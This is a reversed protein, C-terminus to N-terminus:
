QQSILKGSQITKNKDIVRYFYMGSSLNSTELMKIQKTVTTRMVEEGLVNYIRLECSNIQSAENIMVTTQISFPNPYITLTEDTNAADNTQISVTLCNAPIMTAVANIAATTLAGTTTLARGNLTVGTNFAGLAGNNCVITGCFVSYNNLSVAGEILWYVNKSQAGNILKVKSYTSTSLAGNIKIVFVADVNGLANLYISDTFTAAANMLYTHPTLVLNLGFEAPYLLEIDYPLLNLYNYATLLDAACVATSGDAILHITGNVLLSDFGTTLGVNTGVDGTVNTIGSNSVAGDASFISYCAAAGLDPAIPGTLYPSGCGIPTFATIGDITISGTTSLARGELTDGTAMSIAANNVIITGRMTTNTAMSVLGEVKWFVNCAEAGNILKVKSGANTSLTGQIKIIFVANSINQADLILDLNLTADGSVNYVGPTFTSGNGLLVAPFYDDATSNIQAVASLLALDCATTVPDVGAHMVGNVNGFGLFDGSTYYGVNGTLNSHASANDHVSGGTTYLVFDAAAGLTPAQAFIVNPMLFLSVATLTILLKTKM